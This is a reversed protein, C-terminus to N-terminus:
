DASGNSTANDTLHWGRDRKSIKGGKQLGPLVRYLYSHKIGMAAALEAITVGPRAKVIELAQLTRTGTDRPRGRAARRRTARPHGTGTGRSAGAPQRPPTAATPIAALAKVAAELQRHEEVLPALEVLRAQIEGQTAKLFDNVIV